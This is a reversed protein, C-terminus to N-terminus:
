FPKALCEKSSQYFIDQIIVYVNDTQLLIEVPIINLACHQYQVQNRQYGKYVRIDQFPRALTMCRQYLKVPLVYRLDEMAKTTLGLHKCLSSM